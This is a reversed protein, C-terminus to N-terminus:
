YDSREFLIKEGSFLDRIQDVQGGFNQVTLNFHM